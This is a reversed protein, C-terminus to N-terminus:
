PSPPGARQAARLRALQDEYARAFEEGFLKKFSAEPDALLTECRERYLEWYRLKAPVALLSGKKLQRDFQQQLRDPEFQAFMTEFAVRMGALMALQHARLDDFADEFAEVAPLYAANRKVLLNHLADDVNASFKLPNNDAQRFQTMRMRFEDKIQQRARLVDMLGAVVVKLIRGFDRALEDTVDVGELGAGALMATLGERAFATSPAPAAPAVAPQMPGGGPPVDSVRVEAPPEEVPPEPAARPPTIRASPPPTPVPRPAPDPLEPVPDAPDSFPDYDPPPLAQDPRAAVPSEFTGSDSALPDYDHPILPVPASPPRQVPPPTLVAPPRYHGALPSEADLDRATPGKRQPARPRDGGLLKLPDVEGHGRADDPDLVAPPPRSDLALPGFPDDSELGGRDASRPADVRAAGAITVRIEYPEILLRDGSRLIRPRGRVLREKSQNIYVGNTSTDELYFAGDSFTIVAHRNSVKSHPLVWDSSRARGITGGDPGFSQRGATGISSPQPSVVELTLIV